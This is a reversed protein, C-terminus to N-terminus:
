ASLGICGGRPVTTCYHLEGDCCFFQALGFAGCVDGAGGRTIGLVSYPMTMCKNFIALRAARCCSIDTLHWGTRLQRVDNVYVVAAVVTRYAVFATDVTDVSVCHQM